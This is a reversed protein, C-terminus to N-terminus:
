ISKPFFCLLQADVFLGELFYQWSVFCYNIVHKSTSKSDFNRAETGIPPLAAFSNIAFDQFVREPFSRKSLLTKNKYQIQM